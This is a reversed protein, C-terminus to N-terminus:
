SLLGLREKIEIQCIPFSSPSALTLLGMFAKMTHDLTWLFISPVTNKVNQSFILNKKEM